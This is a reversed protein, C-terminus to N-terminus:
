YAAGPSSYQLWRSRVPESVQQQFDPPRVGEMVPGIDNDPYPDFRQLEQRQVSWPTWSFLRPPGYNCGVAM